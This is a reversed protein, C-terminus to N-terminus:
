QACGNSFVGMVIDGKTGVTTAAYLGNILLSSVTEVHYLLERTNWDVAEMTFTDRGNRRSRKGVCYM